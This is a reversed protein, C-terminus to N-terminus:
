PLDEHYRLGMRELLGALTDNDFFRLKLWGGSMSDADIEVPAGVQDALIRQLREVDRDRVPSAVTVARKSARVQAELQRVSLGEQVVRGALTSQLTEPLGVLMRAHGLTLERARLLEQVPFSLTLLRLINAIHSRSKGVLLAIEEQQFHFDTVLRQYGAAEEMLNLSQRQVNEALAVAAAEADTYDGVVCPVVSLGADIAARWRREGAIIEYRAEPLARVVLPEIVGQSAISESLARLADADFHQRPQFAGRQLCEVPIHTFTKHM